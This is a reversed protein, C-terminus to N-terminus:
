PNGIVINWYFNLVYYYFLFNIRVGM